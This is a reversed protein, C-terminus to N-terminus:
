KPDKINNDEVKPRVILLIVPFVTKLREPLGLNMSTKISLIERFGELTLHKKNKILDLVQKFLVYDARKQSILCYKDFHSIVVKLNEMSRIRLCISNRDHRNIKKGGFYSQIKSLLEFDKIHLSVQFIAQVRYGLRYKNDRYIGITFGRRCIWNYIM